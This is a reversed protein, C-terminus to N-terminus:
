RSAEIAEDRALRYDDNLELLSELRQHRERAFLAVLGVLPLSTLASLPSHQIGEAVPLAVVSLAADVVYVWSERIQEALSAGRSFAFRSGSVAFDVVFQAALAALLLGITAHAPPTHAIAFVAVPGVAYWSNGVAQVVRSPRM